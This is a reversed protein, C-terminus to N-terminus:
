GVGGRHLSSAGVEARGASAYPRQRGYLAAGRLRAGPGRALHPNFCDHAHCWCQWRARWGAAHARVYTLANRADALALPFVSATEGHNEKVSERFMRGPVHEPTTQLVRYKLVFTTIGKGRLWEAFKGEEELAALFHFGGGPIVIMATGVSSGPDPRYVTLTPQSVNTVMPGFPGAVISEPFSWDESGPATGSYLRITSQAFLPTSVGLLSAVLIVM